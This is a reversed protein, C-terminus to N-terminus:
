NYDKGYDAEFVWSYHFTKTDSEFAVSDFYYSLKIKDLAREISGPTPDYETKTYYNITGQLSQNLRINDASIQAGGDDESWVIYPTEAKLAEAHYVNDIVDLLANKIDVLSSM